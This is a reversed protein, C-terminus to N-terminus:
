GGSRPVVNEDPKPEAKGRRQATFGAEFGTDASWVQRVYFGDCSRRGRRTDNLGHTPRM